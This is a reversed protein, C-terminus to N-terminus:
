FNEEDGLWSYRGRHGELCNWTLTRYLWTEPRGLFPLYEPRVLAWFNLSRRSFNLRTIEHRLSFNSLSFPLCIDLFSETFYLFYLLFSFSLSHAAFLVFCAFAWIVVKWDFRLFEETVFLEVGFLLKDNKELFVSWRLTSLASKCKYHLAM